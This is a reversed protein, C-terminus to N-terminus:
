AKQMLSKENNKGIVERSPKGTKGDVAALLEGKMKDDLYRLGVFAAQTTSFYDETPNPQTEGCCIFALLSRGKYQLSPDWPLPATDARRRRQAIVTYLGTISAETRRALGSWFILPCFATPVRPEGGVLTDMSANGNLMANVFQIKHTGMAYALTTLWNAGSPVTEVNAGKTIAEHMKAVNEETEDLRVLEELVKTQKLREQTKKAEEACAQKLRLENELALASVDNDKEQQTALKMVNDALQRRLRAAQDAFRLQQQQENQKASMQILEENDKLAKERNAADLQAKLLAQEREKKELKLNLLALAELPNEEVLESETMPRMLTQSITTTIFIHDKLVAFEKEQEEQAMDKLQLRLKQIVYKKLTDLQKDTKWMCYILPVIDFPHTKERGCAAAIVCLLDALMTRRRDSLIAGGKVYEMRNDTEVPKSMQGVYKDLELILTAVEPTNMATRKRCTWDGDMPDMNVHAIFQHVQMIDEFSILEEDDLRQATQLKKSSRWMSLTETEGPKSESPVESGHVTDVYLRILFRDLLAQQGADPLLENSASFVTHIPVPRTREGDHFMRENLITLLASLLGRQAKFIEDIFAFYTTDGALKGSLNRVFRRDELAVLDVPGVLDELTSGQHLTVQFYWPVAGQTGRSPTLCRQVETCVFSKATGPPGFLLVHQRAVVALLCMRIAEDRCVLVKGLKSIINRARSGFQSPHACPQATKKHWDSQSMPLALLTPPRPIEPPPTGHRNPKPPTVSEFHSRLEEVAATASVGPHLPRGSGPNDKEPARVSKTEVSPVRDGPDRDRDTRTTSHHADRPTNPPPVPAGCSECKQETGYNKSTCRLCTWMPTTQGPKAGCMSCSKGSSNVFTCLSCAWPTTSM